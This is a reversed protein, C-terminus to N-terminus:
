QCYGRSMRIMNGELFNIELQRFEASHKDLFFFKKHRSSSDTNDSFIQDSDTAYVSRDNEIVDFVKVGGPTRGIYLGEDSINLTFQPQDESLDLTSYIERISDSNAGNSITGSSLFNCTVGEVLAEDTLSQYFDRESIVFIEKQFFGLYINALILLVLIATLILNPLNKM